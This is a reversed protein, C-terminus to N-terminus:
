RGGHRLCKHALLLVPRLDAIYPFVDGPSIHAALSLPPPHPRPCSGALLLDFSDPPLKALFRVPSTCTLMPEKEQKWTGAEEREVRDYIEKEEAVKCM